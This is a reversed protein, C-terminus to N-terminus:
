TKSTGSNDRKAIQGRIWADVESESWGVAQTGLPVPRPFTGAAIRDYIATHKLGVKAEVAQRRLIRM